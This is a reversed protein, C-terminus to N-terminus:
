NRIKRLLRRIPGQNKCVANWLAAKRDTDVVCMDEVTDLADCLRDAESHSMATTDINPFELDFEDKLWGLDTCRAQIAHRIQDHMRPRAFGHLERDAKKIAHKANDRPCSREKRQVEQLLSMAEASFSTNDDKRRSLREPDFHPIHQAFFDKVIDGDKLARRDFIRVKMSGIGSNKYLELTSRYYAKPPLTFIPKRKINQQAKSLTLSAPERLYAAIVIKSALSKLNSGLMRFEDDGLDRFFSESSLIITNPNLTSVEEKVANWKKSSIKLVESPSSDLQQLASAESTLYPILARHNHHHGTDPHLIGANILATRSAQLTKQLTTTGTKPHGIHLILRQTM